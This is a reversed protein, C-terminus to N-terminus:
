LSRAAHYGDDARSHFESMPFGWICGLGENRWVDLDSFMAKARSLPNPIRAAADFLSGSALWM